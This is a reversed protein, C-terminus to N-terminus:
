KSVGRTDSCVMRNPMRVTDKQSVPRVIQIPRIYGNLVHTNAEDVLCCVCM